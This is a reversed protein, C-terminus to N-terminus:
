NFNVFIILYILNKILKLDTKALLTPNKITISKIKALGSVAAILNPVGLFSFVAGGYLCPTLTILHVFDPRKKLFDRYLFPTKFEKFINLSWVKM